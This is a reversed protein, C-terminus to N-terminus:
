NAAIRMLLFWNGMQAPGQYGEKASRGCTSAEQVMADSDQDVKAYCVM